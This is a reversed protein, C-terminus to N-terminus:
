TCCRRRSPAWCRLCRCCSPLPHQTGGQVHAGCGCRARAQVTCVCEEHLCFRWSLSCPLAWVEAQAESTMPPRPVAGSQRWLGGNALGFSQLQDARDSGGPMDGGYAQQHAALRASRRLAAPSTDRFLGARAKPARKVRGHPPPGADEAALGSAASSRRPAMTPTRAGPAPGTSPPVFGPFAGPGADAAYHALTSMHTCGPQCVWLVPLGPRAGAGKPAVPPPPGSTGAFSGPTMFSFPQPTTM